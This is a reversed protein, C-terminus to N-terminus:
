ELYSIHINVPDEISLRTYVNRPPISKGDDGNISFILSKTKLPVGFWEIGGFQKARTEAKPNFIKPSIKFDEGALVLKGILYVNFFIRKVGLKNLSIQSDRTADIKRNLIPFRSLKAPLFIGLNTWNFNSRFEIGKLQGWHDSKKEKNKPSTILHHSSPHYSFHDIEKNILEAGAFSYRVTGEKGVKDIKESHLIVRDKGDLPLFNYNLDGNELEKIRFVHFLNGDDNVIINHSHKM